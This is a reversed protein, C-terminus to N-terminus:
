GHYKEDNLKPRCIMQLLLHTKYWNITKRLGEELTYKAKWGLIKRAKKSSLYQYKIEYKVKNLIKYNPKTGALQYIKKVLELVSIPNEGSFNFAEGYLKAQPMKEALLLYGGVIDKVYIYDRIFKGDSRILLPKEKIISRLVDPIIRSFHFDGPGYINGCRTTCVPLGYTRFYSRSLLDTCSKSVDYPYEGMLAYNEKYPLTNHKGYAKDSSAVVIAEVFNKGRCSDLLNWTGQINSKFTNLPNRLAASVITEAALHFIIQPKYKDIIDKVLKLNIVNGKKYNIDKRINSLIPNPRNYTKDLGIIKAGRNLLTETLHSGLFGEYGTVLVWKNKWFNDIM